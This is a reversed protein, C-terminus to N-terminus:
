AIIMCYLLATYTVWVQSAMGFQVNPLILGVGGDYLWVVRSNTELRLKLRGVWASELLPSNVTAHFSRIATELVPKVLSDETNEM